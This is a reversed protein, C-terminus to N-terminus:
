NGVQIQNYSTPTNALSDSAYQGTRQRVYNSPSPASATTSTTPAFAVPGSASDQASATAVLGLVLCALM